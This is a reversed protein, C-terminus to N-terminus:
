NVYLMRYMNSTWINIIKSMSMFNNGYDLYNTNVVYCTIETKYLFIHCLNQGSLFSHWTFSLSSMESPSLLIFSYVTCQPKRNLIKFEQFFYDQKSPKSRTGVGPDVVTALPDSDWLILIVVPLRDDGAYQPWEWLFSFQLSPYWEM